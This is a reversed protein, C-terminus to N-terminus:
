WSWKYDIPLVSAEVEFIRMLLISRWLLWISLNYCALIMIWFTIDILGYEECNYCMLVAVMLPGYLDECNLVHLVCYILAKTLM